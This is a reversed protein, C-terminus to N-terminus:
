LVPPLSTYSKVDLGTFAPANLWMEPNYQFVEAPEAPVSTAAVASLNGYTRALNLHGEAAMSGVVTLKKNCTAYPETTATPTGCTTIDGEAVDSAQAIYVGHLETVAPDIYVNGSVYVNLRPVTALTYAAYTINSDIYLDGPVYLTIAKGAAISIATHSSDGRWGAM